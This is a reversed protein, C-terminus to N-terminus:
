KKIIQMIKKFIKKFFGEENCEVMSTNEEEKVEAERNIRRFMNESSYADSIIKRHRESNLELAKRIEDKEEESDCWYNLKLLVLMTATDKTINQEALTKRTDYVPTYTELRNNKILEYLKQPIRKIYEESMLNIIGYVESYMEKTKVDM